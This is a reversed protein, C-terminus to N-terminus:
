TTSTFPNFGAPTNAASTPCSHCSSFPPPAKQPGVHSGNQHLRGKPRPHPLPPLHDLRPRQAHCIARSQVQNQSLQKRRRPAHRARVHPRLAKRWQTQHRRRDRKHRRLPHTRLHHGEVSKGHHHRRSPHRRRRGQHRRRPNPTSSIAPSKVSQAGHDDLKRRGTLATVDYNRHVLEAIVASGVFGSGGTLFVNKSM